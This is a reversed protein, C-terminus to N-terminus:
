RCLRAGVERYASGAADGSYVYFAGAMAGISAGGGAIVVRALSAAAYHYDTLFTTSSGGSNSSGLFGFGVGSLIDKIYGSGTPYASAIETYNTATDDAFNTHNNTYHVKGAAGINVNIGDVWSWINGFLNEIGRYSMYATGPKAGASPQTGDTSANGKANSAGAVTHPSDNQNASSGLYSGNTNGAGLRNQSNFNGYEVLYLLQIASWLAFDLQHWGSGNAAALSRCEARTVGVLPYVGSVSSLKDNVLDLNATMDDLNLGSKYVGDTADRYCADYAGVYRHSVEVGAKFFAPHVAFGSAPGDAIEWINNAGDRTYKYWFKPIEVMVNGDAGTLNAATGDAKKTSDDSKLYYNVTGNANVVCRKMNGHISPLAGSSATIYTDATANWELAKASIVVSGGGMLPIAPTAIALALKM